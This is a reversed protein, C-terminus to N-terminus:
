PTCGEFVLAPPIAMPRGTSQGKVACAAHLGGSALNADPQILSHVDDFVTSAEEFSVFHKRLNAAAKRPDV